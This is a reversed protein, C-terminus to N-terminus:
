TGVYIGTGNILVLIDGTVRTILLYKRMRYTDRIRRSKNYGEAGM